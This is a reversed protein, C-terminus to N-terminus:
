ESNRMKFLSFVSRQKREPLNYKAFKENIIKVKNFEDSLFFSLLEEFDNKIEKIKQLDKTKLTPLVKEEINKVLAVIPDLSKLPLVKWDLAYDTFIGFVGTMEFILREILNLKKFNSTELIENLLNCIKYTTYASAEFGRLEANTGERFFYVFGIICPIFTVLLFEPNEFDLRFIRIPPWNHIMVTLISLALFTRTLNRFYKYKREKNDLAICQKVIHLSLTM